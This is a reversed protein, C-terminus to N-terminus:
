RKVYFIPSIYRVAPQQWRAGAAAMISINANFSSKNTGRCCLFCYLIALRYLAQIISVITSAHAAAGCSIIYWRLWNSPNADDICGLSSLAHDM